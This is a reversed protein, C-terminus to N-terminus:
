MKNTLNKLNLEPSWGPSSYNSVEDWYNSYESIDIKKIPKFDGYINELMYELVEEKAYGGRRFIELKGEVYIAMAGGFNVEVIEKM